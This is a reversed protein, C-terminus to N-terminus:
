VGGGRTVKIVDIVDAPDRTNQAEISQKKVGVRSRLTLVIAGIMAILLVLGSIQFLLVYRTYILRGLAQRKYM